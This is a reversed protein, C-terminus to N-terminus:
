KQILDQFDTSISHAGASEDRGPWGGSLLGTVGRGVMHSRWSCAALASPWVRLQESPQHSYCLLVCSQPCISGLVSHEPCPPRPCSPRVAAAPCSAGVAVCFAREPPDGRVQCLCTARRTRRRWGPSPAAGVGETM